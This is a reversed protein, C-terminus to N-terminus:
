INFFIYQKLLISMQKINRFEFNFNKPNYGTYRCLLGNINMGLNVCFLYNIAYIQSEFIKWIKSQKKECSNTEGLTTYYIPYPARFTLIKQMTHM